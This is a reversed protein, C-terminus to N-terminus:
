IHILSLLHYLFRKRLPEVLLEMPLSLHPFDALYGSAPSAVAMEEPLDIQLLYELVVQLGEINLELPAEFSFNVNVFPWKITHLAHHFDRAFKVKLLNHWYLVTEKLYSRLHLATSTTLHRSIESINAFITACREDDGKDIEQQLRDSLCEIYQIIKMYQLTCELMSLQSFYENLKTKVEKTEALHVSVTQIVNTTHKCVSNIEDVARNAGSVTAAFSSNRNSLDLEAKTQKIEDEFRKRLEHCKALDLLDEAHEEDFKRVIDRKM